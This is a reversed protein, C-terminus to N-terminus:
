DKKVAEHILKIWDLRKMDSASYLLNTVTQNQVKPLCISEDIEKYSNKELRYFSVKEADFRWVEKIGLDAFILFKPMSGQTIDVEIVLEPSPDIMLDIENKGRIIEANEFYFTADGEFGKKKSEKRFTTSAAGEYDLELIRAIEVVLESLLHKFKEHKYDLVMIELDGNCYSFHRDSVETHESLIREYTEWSIGHLIVREVIDNATNTFKKSMTDILASM